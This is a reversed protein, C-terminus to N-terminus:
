CSRRTARHCPAAAASTSWRDRGCGSGSPRQRPSRPRCPSPAPAPVAVTASQPLTGSVLRANGSLADRYVIELNPPGSAVAQPEPNLVGLLPGTLGAWQQRAPSVLPPHIYSAMAGSMIQIQAATVPQGIGTVPLGSTASIGFGGTQALTQRLAKNQLSTIERPGATALFAALLAIMALALCPGPGAEGALFRRIRSAVPLGGPPPAPSVPPDGGRSLPTM